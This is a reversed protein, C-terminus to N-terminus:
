SFKPLLSASNRRAHGYKGTVVSRWPEPDVKTSDLNQGSIQIASDKNLTGMDPGHTTPPYVIVIVDQLGRIEQEQHRLATIADRLIDLTVRIEGRMEELREVLTDATM